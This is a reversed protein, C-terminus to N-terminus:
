KYYGVLFFESLPIMVIHSKNCSSRVQIEKVDRSLEAARARQLVSAATAEVAAQRIEAKRLEEKLSAIEERQEQWPKGGLEEDVRCNGAGRSFGSAQKVVGDLEQASSTSATPSSRLPASGRRRAAPLRTPIFCDRDSYQSGSDSEVSSAAAASTGSAPESFPARMDNAGRNKSTTKDAALKTTTTASAPNEALDASETGGGYQARLSALENEARLARLQWQTKEHLVNGVDVFRQQQQQQLQQQSNAKVDNGVVAATTSTTSFSADARPAKNDSSLDDLFDGLLSEEGEGHLSEAAFNESSLVSVGDINVGVSQPSELGSADSYTGGRSSAVGDDASFLNARGKVDWGRPEDSEDDKSPKVLVSSCDGRSASPSLATSTSTCCYFNRTHDAPPACKGGVRRVGVRTSTSHVFGGDGDAGSCSSPVVSTESSNGEKNSTGATSDAASATYKALQALPLM